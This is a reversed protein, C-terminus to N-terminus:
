DLYEFLVSFTVWRNVEQTKLGGLMRSQNLDPQTAPKENPFNGAVFGDM